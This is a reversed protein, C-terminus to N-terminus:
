CRPWTTSSGAGSTSGCGPIGPRAAPRTARDGTRRRDGGSARPPRSRWPRGYGPLDGPFAKVLDDMAEHILNGIDLASITITEEPQEIPEVGLMRKVFYGHPCGAYSELATPSVMREGTAFDPLDRAGCSTETTGPSRRRSGPPSWDRRGDDIVPDALPVGSIIARTRWEQETALSEATDRGLLAAAFSPSEIIERGRATPWETAALEERGSLARLTYILWRSPLRDTSRRLNGRPFSAQVLPASAFAAM